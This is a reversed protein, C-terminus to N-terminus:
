TPVWGEAANFLAAAVDANDVCEFQGFCGVNSDHIANYNPDDSAMIRGVIKAMRGRWSYHPTATNTFLTPSAISFRKASSSLHLCGPM